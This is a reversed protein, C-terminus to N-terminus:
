GFKAWQNLYPLLSLYLVIAVLRTWDTGGVQLAQSGSFGFLRKALVNRLPCYWGTHWHGSEGCLCPSWTLGEAALYIARHQSGDRRLGTHGGGSGLEQEGGHGHLSCM